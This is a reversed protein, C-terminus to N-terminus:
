DNRLTKLVGTEKDFDEKQWKGLRFLYIDKYSEGIPKMLQATVFAGSLGGILYDCRSLLAVTTIYEMGRILHEGTSYEVEDGGKQYFKRENYILLDGFEKKYIHLTEEGDVALFVKTCNYKKIWEKAKQIVADNSPQIPIGPSACYFYGCGRVNIGLVVDKSDFLKQYEKEIFCKANKNLRIYKNFARHWYEIVEDDENLVRFPAPDGSSIIVQKAHQLDKVSYGFPQEFFYEYANEKGILKDDLYTNRYNMMDIVPIYGQEVAYDIWHMYGNVYSFIGERPGKRHIVYFIKDPYDNGYSVIKENKKIKNVIRKRNIKQLIPYIVGGHKRIFSTIIERKTM